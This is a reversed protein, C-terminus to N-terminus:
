AVHDAAERFAADTTAHVVQGPRAAQKLLRAALRRAGDSLGGFADEVVAVAKGAALAQELLALKLALHVLDRDVPALTLVPSPRGGTVVHLGGRDDVQLASLRQFSLGALAQSAKPAVGRAVAAPSGGLEAAARELLTRLGDSTVAAPRAPAATEVPAALETELRQIEVEVSRVDRVFGGADQALRAETARQEDELALKQAMAGAAEPTADWEAVRRRWEAVVADADALRGLADRLDSPKALGLAELAARIAAADKEYQGEVKKEWDDLVRRRRAIREWTELAAIWRLAVWASFGFAPIDLLALYRVGPAAGAGLAGAVALAAGAGVGGVFAPDRWLPGPAGRAEAEALAEREAGAKALAEARKLSVREYAAIRAEAGDGLEAAVRAVEDLEARQAEARALGERLKDRGRLVEDLKFSRAQLQDLQAQLKESVRAKALEVELQGLRRRAQEPTLGARAPALGAAAGAQRSPLEAAALGLLAALRAPPPAGVQSQLFAAIQPLDQSVLAFSRKQADFRHLQAGTAFDRVLRYTVRDNGVVTLGARMAANAPGGSARPLAEGDRPDPYLLAEFLRRLTAGDAAVVNYGPRLTARGGAPAVGRIGQAAFELLIV